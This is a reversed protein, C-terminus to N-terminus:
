LELIAFYFYTKDSANLQKQPSAASLNAVNYWTISKSGWSVIQKVQDAAVYHFITNQGRVACFSGVYDVSAVYVFVPKQPFNLTNVSNAGSGGGGTYSGTVFRCNRLALATEQGSVAGQLNTIKSDLTSQASSLASTSAKGALAADIKANDANFETRLVKDNPQWQCLGYNSTYNSAM